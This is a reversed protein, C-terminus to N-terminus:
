ILGNQFLAAFDRGSTASTHIPTTQNHVAIRTDIEDIVIDLNASGIGPPGQPGALTITLNNSPKPSVIIQQTDQNLTLRQGSIIGEIKQSSLIANICQTM